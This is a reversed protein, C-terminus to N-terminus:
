EGEKKKARVILVDIKAKRAVKESVSGLLLREIGSKSHAGVVILDAKLEEATSLITDFAEGTEVIPKAKINHEEELKALTEELKKLSKRELKEFINDITELDPAPVIIGEAILMPLEKEVVYIVFLEAGSCKALLASTNLVEETMGKSFDIAALIKKYRM